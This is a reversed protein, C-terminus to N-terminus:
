GSFFAFLWFVQAAQFFGAPGPQSGGSAILNPLPGGAGPPGGRVGPDQVVQALAPGSLAGAAMLTGVGVALFRARITRIQSM